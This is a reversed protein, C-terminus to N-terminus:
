RPPIFWFPTFQCFLYTTNSCTLLCFAGNGAMSVELHSPAIDTSLCRDLRVRKLDVPHSNVKVGFAQSGSVRLPPPVQDVVAHSRPPRPSVTELWRPVSPVPRCLSVPCGGGGAPSWMMMTMMMMCGVGAAGALSVPPRFRPLRDM